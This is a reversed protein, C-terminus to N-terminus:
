GEVKSVFSQSVVKVFPINMYTKLTWKLVYIESEDYNVMELLMLGINHCRPTGLQVGYIASSNWIVVCPWLLWLMFSSWRSTHVQPYLWGWKHKARRQAQIRTDWHLRKSRDSNISIMRFHPTSKAGRSEDRLGECGQEAQLYSAYFVRFAKFAGPVPTSGRSDM